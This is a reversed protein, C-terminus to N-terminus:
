VPVLIGKFTIVPLLMAKEKELAGQETACHFDHTPKKEHEKWKIETSTHTRTAAPQKQTIEQM